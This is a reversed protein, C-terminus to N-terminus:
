NSGTYQFEVDGTANNVTVYGQGIERIKILQAAIFDFRRREEPSTSTNALTIVDDARQYSTPYMIRIADGGTKLEYFGFGIINTTAATGCQGQTCGVWFKIYPSSNDTEVAQGKFMGIGMGNEYSQDGNNAEGQMLCAMTYETSKSGDNALTLLTQCPTGGYTYGIVNIQYNSSSSLDYQVFFFTESDPLASFGPASFLGLFLTAVM